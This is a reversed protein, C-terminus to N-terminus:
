RPRWLRQRWNWYSKTLWGPEYVMGRTQKAKTIYGAAAFFQGIEQGQHIHFVLELLLLLQSNNLDKM